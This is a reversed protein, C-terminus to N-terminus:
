GASAQPKGLKESLAAEKLVQNILWNVSREQRQAEAKIAQHVPIPIRIQVQQSVEKM